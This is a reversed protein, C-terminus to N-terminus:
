TVMYRLPIFPHHTSEHAHSVLALHQNPLVPPWANDHRPILYTLIYAPIRGEEEEDDDGLYM